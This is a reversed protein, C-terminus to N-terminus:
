VKLSRLSKKFYWKLNQYFTINIMPFSYIYIFTLYFDDMIRSGLFLLWKYKLIYENLTKEM